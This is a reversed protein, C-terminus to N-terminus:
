AYETGGKRFLYKDSVAKRINRGNMDYHEFGGRIVIGERIHDGGVVTKGSAYEEVKEHSFKGEYLVPVYRLPNGNLFRIVETYPLFLGSSVNGVYIDFVRFEVGQAGYGLDQVGKGYIEGLVYFGTDVHFWYSIRVSDM